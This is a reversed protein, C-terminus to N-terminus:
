GRVPKRGEKALVRGTIEVGREVDLDVVLPVLGETDPIDFRTYDLYPFGRKGALSITYTKAKPAGVIRYRGKEDTTAEMARSRQTICAVKVGPAPKGTHRDRVTGLIPKTPGVLIDNGTAYLGLYGAKWGTKPGAKAVVQFEMAETKESRTQLTVVRDRGV